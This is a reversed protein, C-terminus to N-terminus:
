RSKEMDKAVTRLSKAGVEEELTFLLRMSRGHATIVIPHPGIVGMAYPFCIQGDKAAVRATRSERDITGGHTSALHPREGDALGPVEICVLVQEQRGLMVSAFRDGLNQLPVIQGDARRVTGSWRATDSGRQKAATELHRAESAPVTRYGAWCVSSIAWVAGLIAVARNM